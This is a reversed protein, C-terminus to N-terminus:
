ILKNLVFYFDVVASNWSIIAEIFLTQSASTSFLKKLLITDNVTIVANAGVAQSVIVDTGAATTGIRVNGTVANATTNVINLQSIAYGAPIVVSTDANNARVTTPPIYAM